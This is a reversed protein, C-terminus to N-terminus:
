SKSKKEEEWKPKLYFEYGAWAAAVIGLIWLLANSGGKSEGSMAPLAGTEIKTIM